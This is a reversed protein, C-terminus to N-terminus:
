KLVTLKVEVRMTEGTIKDTGLGFLRTQGDKMPLSNSANFTRFATPDAVATLPKSADSSFISSDRINLYVSFTTEDTRTLQTDIDTGVNRFVVESKTTEVARPSQTQAGSTQTASSTSTGIPVDVGMRISTSNGGRPSATAILVFPLSSIKKEGQWRTLVVDVQVALSELPPKATAPPTTQAAVLSPAAACALAVLLGACVFSNLRNM